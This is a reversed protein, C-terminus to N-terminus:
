QVEYTLTRAAGARVLDIRIRDVDPLVQYIEFLQEFNRIPRENVATLLDGQRLGMRHPLSDPRVSAIEYGALKGGLYRPAVRLERMLQDMESVA